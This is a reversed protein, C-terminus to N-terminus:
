RRGARQQRAASSPLEMVGEKILHNLIEAADEVSYQGPPQDLWWVLTEFIVNVTCNVRLAVPVKGDRRVRDIAVERSLRLQEERMAGAAGGTLLATWLARNEHIYSFVALNAAEIDVTDLVPVTLEILRRMQESAVQDLLAEKTGHHRFFTTYNVGAAAAIDRVTIQELTKYELLKLLAKQLADASRQARMDPRSSLNKEKIKHVLSHCLDFIQVIQKAVM